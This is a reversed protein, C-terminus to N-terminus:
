PVRNTVTVVYYPVTLAPDPHFWGSGDPALVEFYYMLDWRASIDEGPITFVGRTAPAELTKFPVLQNVPRYHLRVTKAATTPLIGLTLTLPQGAVATRPPFHTFRPYWTARAPRAPPAPPPAATEGQIV